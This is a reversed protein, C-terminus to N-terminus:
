KPLLYSGNSTLAFGFSGLNWTGLRVRDISWAACRLTIRNVIKESNMSRPTIRLHLHLLERELFSLMLFSITTYYFM